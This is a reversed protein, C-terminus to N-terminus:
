SYKGNRAQQGIAYAAIQLRTHLSLKKLINHIHSKVTHTAIDLRQAIERNPLGEQVMGIIERERPTLRTAEDAETSKERAGQEAVWSFLSEVLPPPLVHTGATVSRITRVFDDITADEPIFGSVGLKMFEVLDNEKPLFDVIVQVCPSAEKISAVMGLIDSNGSSAGVLVVEPRADRVQRIAAGRDAAAGVIKLGRQAGLATAIWDRLLRNGEILLLPIKKDMEM